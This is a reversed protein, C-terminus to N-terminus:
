LAAIVFALLEEYRLTYMSKQEGTEEDEWENYCFLGYDHADLEEAEFAAKVDQAIVGVHTRSGGKMKFKKVLGKIATAVRLEAESLDEIDTKYNEDSTSQTGNVSFVTNWRNAATGCSMSNDHNVSLYGGAGNSNVTDTNQLWFGNTDGDNFGFWMRNYDSQLDAHFMKGISGVKNTHWRFIAQNGTPDTNELFIAAAGNPAAYEINTHGKVQLKGDVNLKYNGDTGGIGVVGGGQATPSIDVKFLTGGVQLDGGVVTHGDLQVEATGDGTDGGPTIHIGTEDQDITGTPDTVGDPYTLSISQGSTHPSSTGATGNAATTIRGDEDVTIDANTYSGATVATNQLQSGTISGTMVKNGDLSIIKSSPISNAILKDETISANAIKSGSLSNNVIKSGDVSIINENTITNNAINSGTITGSAINVGAITGSAINGGTVTGSALKDGTVAGPQITDAIGGGTGDALNALTSGHEARVLTAGKLKKKKGPIPM